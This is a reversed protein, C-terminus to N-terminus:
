IGCSGNPQIVCPVATSELGVTRGATFNNHEDQGDICDWQGDQLRDQGICKGDKSCRTQNAPCAPTASSSWTSTTTSSALDVTGTDTVTVNVRTVPVPSTWDSCNPKSFVGLVRWTDGPKCVISGALVEQSPSFSMVHLERRFKWSLWQHARKKHFELVLGKIRMEVILLIGLIVDPFSTM